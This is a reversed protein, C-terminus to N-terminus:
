NEEPSLEPTTANADAESVAPAPTVVASQEAKAARKKQILKYTGFVGGTLLLVLIITWLTKRKSLKKAVEPDISALSPYKVLKTLTAGFKVNVYSTANVAWGNANLIPGLDRKRLKFWTLIVSPLSIVLLISAIAVLLQLASLKSAGDIIQVLTQLLLSFAMGLAAFIGAFKAIDFARRM